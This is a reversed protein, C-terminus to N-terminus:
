VSSLPFVSSLMLIFRIMTLPLITPPSIHEAASSPKIVPSLALFYDANACLIWRMIRTLELWKVCCSGDGAGAVGIIEMGVFVALGASDGM